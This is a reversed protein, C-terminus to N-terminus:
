IIILCVFNNSKFRKRLIIYIECYGEGMTISRNLEGKNAFDLKLKINM